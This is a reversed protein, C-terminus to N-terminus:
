KGRHQRKEDPAIRSPGAVERPVGSLRGALLLLDSKKLKDRVWEEWRKGAIKEEFIHVHLRASVDQLITKIEEAAARDQAKHSLFINAPQLSTERTEPANAELM